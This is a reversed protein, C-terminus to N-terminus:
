DALLPALAADVARGLRLPDPDVKVVIQLGELLMTLM